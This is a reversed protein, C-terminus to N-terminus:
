ARRKRDVFYTALVCGGHLTRCEKLRLHVRRGPDVFMPTGSGLLVPHINVGVEDIVGAEFLSQALNGGSMVCIDRGKRKKLDRVFEGGDRVLELDPHPSEKLTRSFLYTKVGPYGGSGRGNSQAMAFEWTKRGMLMTDVTAWYNKMVDNVDPSTRLWDIEGNPGAIFGDLSCAAGYTVTRM